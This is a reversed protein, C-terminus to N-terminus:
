NNDKREIEGCVTIQIVPHIPDDSMVEIKFNFPGAPFKRLDVVAEAKGNKGPKLTAPYRKIRMPAGKSYIRTVNLLSKGENFILFQLPFSEPNKINSLNLIGLDILRPNVETRPGDAIQQATLHETDPQIEARVPITFVSDPMSEDPIIDLQYEVPGMEGIERTNFYVSFTALEGPPIVPTSIDVDLADSNKKWVPRVPNHSQNYVVIFQHRSTGYRVKEFNLSRANFRMSGMEFPYERSLTQPTGIVTGKMKITTLDNHEGTYVKISKEFRGPRGAPNYTFRIRATDGPAILGETHAESTCGCTLRVNNIVTAENGRNIFQVEGSRPGGAEPFAGFDYETALWEINALSPLAYFIIAIGLILLRRM